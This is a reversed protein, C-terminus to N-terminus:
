KNEDNENTTEIYYIHPTPENEAFQKYYSLEKERKEKKLRKTRSFLGILIHILIVVNGVVLFIIGYTKFPQVDTVWFCGIIILLLSIFSVILCSIKLLNEQWKKLNKGDVFSEVLDSYALYLPEFIIHLLIELLFEM